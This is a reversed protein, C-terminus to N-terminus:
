NANQKPENIKPTFILMCGDEKQEMKFLNFHTALSLLYGCKNSAIVPFQGGIYEVGQPLWHIDQHKNYLVTTTVCTGKTATYSTIITIDNNDIVGVPMGNIVAVTAGRVVDDYSRPCFINTTYYASTPTIVFFNVQDYPIRLYNKASTPTVQYILKGWQTLQDVIQNTYYQDERSIPSANYKHELWATKIRDHFISWFLTGLVGIFMAFIM